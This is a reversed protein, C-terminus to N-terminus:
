GDGDVDLLDDDPQALVFAQEREEEADLEAHRRARADREADADRFAKWSFTVPLESANKLVVRRNDSLTVYTAPFAVSGHSLNVAVDHGAATVAVAAEFGGQAYAVIMDCSYARAESPAFSLTVPLNQDVEVFGREPLVHFPPPVSLRFESACTGTNRVMFTKAASSKVPTSAFSVADPFSLLGRKGVARLPVLFKERETAVILEYSYDDVDRPAFFVTFHVETGPAIRSDVMEQGRGNRPGSVRFFPSDPALVRVRRPFRDMNRLSLRAHTETFPEYHRFEVVQPLPSFLPKDVDVASSTQGSFDAMNLLEVIVTKHTAAASM